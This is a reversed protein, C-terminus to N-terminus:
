KQNLFPIAVGTEQNFQTEYWWLGIIEHLAYYVILMAHPDPLWARLRGPTISAAAFATPAAVVRIGQHEFAARARPMHWAYTVLFVTNIGSDKLIAASNYANEFTTRSVTEAWKVPTKFEDELVQKMLSAEPVGPQGPSGGSVLIPLQTKRHLYAGYRLRELTRYNVTDGFYEAAGLNRGGGLVVVAQAGSSFFASLNLAPDPQLRAMMLSATLPISCLYIMVIAVVAVVNGSTRSHTTRRYILGVLLVLMFCGPPLALSKLVGSWDM